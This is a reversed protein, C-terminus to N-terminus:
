QFKRKRITIKIENPLRILCLFPHPYCKYTIELEYLLHMKKLLQSLNTINFHKTHMTWNRPIGREGFRHPVIIITKEKSVRVMENIARTFNVGKHELVHHCYAETFTNDRFPLNNIDCQIFNPITKPNIIKQKTYIHPTEGTYLDCNVDGTPDAGCGVDLRM